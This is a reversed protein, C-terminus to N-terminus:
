CFLLIGIKLFLYKEIGLFIGTYRERIDLKKKVINLLAFTVVKHTRSLFRKFHFCYKWHTLTASSFLETYRCLFERIGFIKM